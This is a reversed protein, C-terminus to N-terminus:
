LNWVFTGAAYALAMCLALTSPETLGWRKLRCTWSEAQDGKHESPEHPWGSSVLAPHCRSRIERRQYDDFGVEQHEFGGSPRVDFSHGIQRNPEPPRQTDVYGARLRDSEHRYSENHPSARRKEFDPVAFGNRETDGARAFEGRLREIAASLEAAHDKGGSYIDTM